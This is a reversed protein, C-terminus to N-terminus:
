RVPLDLQHHRSDTPLRLRTREQATKQCCVIRIALVNRSPRRRWPMKRIQRVSDQAQGSGRLRGPTIISTTHEGLIIRADKGDTPYGERLIRLRVTHAMQETRPRRETPHEWPRRLVQHPLPLRNASDSLLPSHPSQRDNNALSATPTSIRPPNTHHPVM